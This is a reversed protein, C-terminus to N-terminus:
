LNATKLKKPIKIDFKMATNNRKAAISYTSKTKNEQLQERAEDTNNVKVNGIETIIDDKKLGATAAASGEEVELVKVGAGEELDQIKLGLKPGRNFSGYGTINMDERDFNFEGPPFLDSPAGPAGPMRPARPARPIALSKVNGQPTTFSFTREMSIKRHGLTAKITKDKGDRKIHVKIEKKPEMSSIIESLEGPGNVKTDNIKTIIDDKSLGAKEAPSDKVVEEIRVGGDTKETTVGLFTGGKDMNREFNEGSFALEIEKGFDEMNRGFGEFDKELEKFRITRNNITIADDKFEIMPKGNILVKDDKFQITVTADKEGKKRVIIEQSEKPPAPPKPIDQATAKYGLGAFLWPMIAIIIKNM